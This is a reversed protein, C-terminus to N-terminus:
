ELSTGCLTTEEWINKMEMERNREGKLDFKVASKKKRSGLHFITNIQNISVIHPFITM